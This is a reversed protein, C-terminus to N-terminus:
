FNYRIHVEVKELQLDEGPLFPGREGINVTITNEGFRLHSPDAPYTYRALRQNATDAEISAFFGKHPQPEPSFVQPDTWTEDCEGAELPRGNLAVDIRDAATARFLVLEITADAAPEGSLDEYVKIPVGAQKM